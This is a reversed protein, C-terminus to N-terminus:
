TNDGSPMQKLFKVFQQVAIGRHSIRNKEEGSLEAFTEHYGEPEFLPDYGFGGDGSPFKRIHGKCEGEFSFTGYECVFMLVTRFRASRSPAYAMERLLKVVNDEDTAQEGAYRASFVGPAGDLADVLLGTDDALAAMGTQQYLYQAKKLANGELNPADEIVEELGEFDQNSLLTIGLPALIQRMEKVKHLNGSALVMRDPLTFDEPALPPISSTM